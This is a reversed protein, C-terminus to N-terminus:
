IRTYLEILNIDKVKYKGYDEKLLFDDEFLAINCLHEFDAKDEYPIIYWDDNHGQTVYVRKLEKEM